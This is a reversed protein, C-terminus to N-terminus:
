EDKLLLIQRLNGKRGDLFMNYNFYINNKTQLIIEKAEKKNRVVTFVNFRYKKPYDHIDRWFLCAVKDGKKLNEFDELTSLDKIKIM